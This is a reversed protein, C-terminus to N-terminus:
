TRKQLHQATTRQRLTNVSYNLAESGRLNQKEFPTTKHNTEALTEFSSDNQPKTLPIRLSVALLIIRALGSAQLEVQRGNSKEAITKVESTDFLTGHILASKMSCTRKDEWTM